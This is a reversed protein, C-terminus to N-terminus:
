LVWFLFHFSEGPSEVGDALHSCYPTLCHSSCFILPFLVWKIGILLEPLESSCVGLPVLRLVSPRGLAEQGSLGPDETEVLSDAHFAVLDFRSRTSVRFIFFTWGAFSDCCALGIWACSLLAWM